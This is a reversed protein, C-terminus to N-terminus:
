MTAPIVGIVILFVYFFFIIYKDNNYWIKTFLVMKIILELIIAYRDNFIDIFLYTIKM